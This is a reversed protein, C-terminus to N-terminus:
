FIIRLPTSSKERIWNQFLLGCFRLRFVSVILLFVFDNNISVNETVKECAGELVGSHKCVVLSFRATTPAIQRESERFRNKGIKQPENNSNAEYFINKGFNANESAWLILNMTYNSPRLELTECLGTMLVKIVKM